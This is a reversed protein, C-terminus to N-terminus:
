EDIFLISSFNYIENLYKKGERIIIKCNKKQVDLIKNEITKGLNQCLNDDSDCSSIFIKINNEKKNNIYNAIIENNKEIDNTNEFDNLIEKINYLENNQFISIQYGNIKIYNIHIIIDIDEENIMLNYLDYILEVISINFSFYTLNSQFNKLEPIFGLIEKINNIQINKNNINFLNILYIKENDLILKELYIEFNKKNLDFSNIKEDFFKKNLTEIYINCFIIKNEERLKQIKM